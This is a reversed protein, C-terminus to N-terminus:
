RGLQRRRRPGFRLPQANAPGVRAYLHRAYEQWLLEDRFRQRDKPPAAAVADWVAPLPLLGHRIYPSLRTAGRKDVPFVSSRRSAYGTIDLAALAADAAAQGGHVGSPRVEDCTLHGLHERVWEVVADRESPPSPLLPM